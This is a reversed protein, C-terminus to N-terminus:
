VQADELERTREDELLDGKLPTLCNDAIMDCTEPLTYRGDTTKTYLIGKGDVRWIPRRPISGVRPSAESTFYPGNKRSSRVWGYGLFELCTVIKGINDTRPSNSGTIVAM